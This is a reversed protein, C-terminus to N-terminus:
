EEIFVTEGFPPKFKRNATVAWLTHFPPEYEPFTDCHGDTLYILCKVSPENESVHTFPRRYDTGGGGVPQLPEDDILEQEGRIRTDCYLVTVPIGTFAKIDRIEAAFIDLEKQRISGSTDVALIIKAMEESHLAPLYLGTHTYRTNPMKWSYDNRAIETLLRRLQERWNIRPELMEQIFRELSGPMNGQMKAAIAARTVTQKAENELRNRIEPTKAPADTVNGWGDGFGSPKKQPGSENSGDSNEKGNGNRGGGGNKQRSILTYIQEASMNRYHESILADGPLEFGCDKLILNVAYDCANNWTHPDRAERRFPHMLAIHMVQHAMLGTAENLSLAEVFAPNCTIATGNTSASPCNEDAELRMNLAVTAFFPQTSLLQIRARTMKDSKKM